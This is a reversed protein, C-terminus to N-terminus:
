PAKRKAAIFARISRIDSPYNGSSYSFFRFGAQVLLEIGRWGDLDNSRPARFARGMMEVKGGCQPCVHQPEQFESKPHRGSIRRSLWATRLQEKTHYQLKFVKRCRFCAHQINYAYRKLKM